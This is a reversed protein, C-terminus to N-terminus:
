KKKEAAPKAEPQAAGGSKQQKLAKKLVGVSIGTRGTSRTHQGRVRQGYQHRWGRYSKTEIERQVDQKTSFSLDSAVFHKAKGDLPDAPRNLLFTKIGQEQPNKLIAEVALLKEESLEGIPTTKPIKLQKEIVYSIITGLNKGIGKVKSLARNLPWFGEIERGVLRVIGRYNESHAIQAAKPMSKNLAGPKGAPVAANGEPKKADKSPTSDKKEM